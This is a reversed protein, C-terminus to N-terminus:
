ALERRRSGTAPHFKEVLRELPRNVRATSVVAETLLSTENMKNVRLGHSTAQKEKARSRGIQRAARGTRSHLGPLGQTRRPPQKGFTSSPRRPNSQCAPICCSPPLRLAKTSARCSRETAALSKWPEQPSSVVTRRETWRQIAIQLKCALAGRQRVWRTPSPISAAPQEWSARAANRPTPM